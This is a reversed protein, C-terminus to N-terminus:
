ISMPFTTTGSVLSQIFPSTNLNSCSLVIISDSDTTLLNNEADYANVEISFETTSLM